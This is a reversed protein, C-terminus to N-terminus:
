TRLILFISICLNQLRLNHDCIQFVTTGELNILQSKDKGVSFKLMPKESVKWSEVFVPILRWKEKPYCDTLLQTDKTVGGLVFM